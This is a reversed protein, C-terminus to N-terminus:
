LLEAPSFIDWSQVDRLLWKDLVINANKNHFNTTTPQLISSKSYQIRQRQQDARLHDKDIGCSVFLLFCYAFEELIILSREFCECNRFVRM